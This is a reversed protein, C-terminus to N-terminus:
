VHLSSLGCNKLAGLPLSMVEVLGHCLSDISKTPGIGDLVLQFYMRVATSPNELNGNANANESILECVTM